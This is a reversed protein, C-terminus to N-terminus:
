CDWVGARLIMVSTYLAPGFLERTLLPHFDRRDGPQIPCIGHLRYSWWHVEGSPTQWPELADYYFLSIRSTPDFEHARFPVPPTRTPWDSLLTLAIASSITIKGTVVSSPNNLRLFKGSWQEHAARESNINLKSFHSPHIMWLSTRVCQRRNWDYDM